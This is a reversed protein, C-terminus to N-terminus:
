NTATPNYFYIGVDMSRNKSPGIEYRSGEPRPRNEYDLRSVIETAESYNADQVWSANVSTNGVQILDKESVNVRSAYANSHNQPNGGKEACGSLICGLAL